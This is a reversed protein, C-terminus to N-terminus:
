GWVEPGAPFVVSGDHRLGPEGTGATLASEDACVRVSRAIRTLVADRRAPSPQEVLAVGTRACADLRAEVM